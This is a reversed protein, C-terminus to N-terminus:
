EKYKKTSAFFIPCQSTLPKGRTSIDGNIAYISLKGLSDYMTNNTVNSMPVGIRLRSPEIPTAKVTPNPLRPSTRATIVRGILTGTRIVPV